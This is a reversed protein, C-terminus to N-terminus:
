RRWYTDMQIETRIDTIGMGHRNDSYAMVFSTGTVALTPDEPPLAISGPLENYPDLMMSFDPATVGAAMRIHGGTGSPCYSRQDEWFLAFGAPHPAIRPYERTGEHDFLVKPKGMIAGTADIKVAVLRDREEVEDCASKPTVAAATDLAQYVLVFSGDDLAALHNGWFQPDWDTAEVPQPKGALAGSALDITALFVKQENLLTVADYVDRVYSVLCVKDNCAISMEALPELIQPGASPDAAPQDSDLTIPGVLKKAALDWRAFRIEVPPQAGPNAPPTIHLWAASFGGPDAGAQAMSFAAGGNTLDLAPVIEKGTPDVVRMKVLWHSDGPKPARYVVGIGGPGFATYGSLADDSPDSLVVDDPAVRTFAGDLRAMSIQHKGGGPSSVWTFALADGAVDHVLHADYANSVQAFQTFQFTGQGAVLTGQVTGIQAGGAAKATAVLAHKGAALSMAVDAVFHDGEQVAPTVTGDISVDVGAPVDGSVAVVVPISTFMQTDVYAAGHVFQPLSLTASGAGGAGATGGAGGHAGGSGTTSSANQNGSGGCASALALTASVGAALAVRSRLFPTTTV